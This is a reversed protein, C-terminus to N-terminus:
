AEAFTGAVAEWRFVDGDLLSIGATHADCLGAAIAVLKQLMNRPNTAMESALMALARAEQKYNPGRRAEGTM